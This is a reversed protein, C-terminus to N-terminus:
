TRLGSPRRLAAPVASQHGADTPERTVAWTWLEPASLPASVFDGQAADCGLKPLVDWVERSDVGDAVVRIDLDHALRTISRVVTRTQEVRAAERVLEPALKIEHVARRRLYLLSAVGSGFGEVAVEIGLARLRVIRALVSEPDHRLMAEPLELKLEGAAFRSTQLEREMAGLFHPDQVATAPLRFSIAAQLGGARWQRVEALATHIFWEMLPAVFRATEAASLPDEFGLARQDPRRWGLQAQAGSVVGTEVDVAPAYTISLENAEIAKRLDAALTLVLPRHRDHSEDYVAFGSGTRKAAYMAVDAHRLLATADEAHDPCIAIGISAGVSLVHGDLVLPPGLAQLIKDAVITAITVDGGMPLMIAFEDGGLRAVTDSERVQGHIRAAAEKLLVDGSHHGLTDNVDKFGDLDLILLALPNSRRRSERIAQELRDILLVRNPLETLHDHLAQYELAAQHAREGTIDDIIALIFRHGDGPGHVTCATVRAWGISGDARNVRQELEYCDREGGTLQRHLEGSLAADDPHTFALLSRGSLRGDDLGLMAQLARNAAM